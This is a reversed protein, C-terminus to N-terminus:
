RLVTIDGHYIETKGNILQFEILYPFVGPNTFEGTTTQGNWFVSPDNPDFNRKGFVANGWRDFIIWQIVKEIGPTPNLRIEDNIGDNNPSFVNPLYYKAKEVVYVIMQDSRECGTVSVVHYTYTTTESPSVDVSPCDMCFNVAFSDWSVSSIDAQILDTMGELTITEGLHIELDPGADVTFSFVPDIQVTTDFV